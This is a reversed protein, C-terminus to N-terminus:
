NKGNNSSHQVSIMKIQVMDCDLKKIEVRDCAIM